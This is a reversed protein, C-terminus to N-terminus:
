PAVRRVTIGLPKGDPMKFTNISPPFSSQETRISWNLPSWYGAGEILLMCTADSLAGYSSRQPRWRLGSRAHWFFVHLGRVLVFHEPSKRPLLCMGIIAMLPLWNGHDTLALWNLSTPLKRYHRM